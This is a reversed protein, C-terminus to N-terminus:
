AAKVLWPEKGRRRGERVKLINITPERHGHPPLDPLGPSGAPPRWELLSYTGGPLQLSNFANAPYM